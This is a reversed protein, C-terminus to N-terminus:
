HSSCFSVLWPLSGTRGDCTDERLCLQYTLADVYAAPAARRCGCLRGAHAACCTWWICSTRIETEHTKGGPFDMADTKETIHILDQLLAAM